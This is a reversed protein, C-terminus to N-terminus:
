GQHLAQMLQGDVKGVQPRRGYRHARLRLLAQPRIQSRGLRCAFGFRPFDELQIFLRVKGVVTLIGEMMPVFRKYDNDHLTGSLKLGVVQPSGTEITEIM